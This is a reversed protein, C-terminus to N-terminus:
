AALRAEVELRNRVAVAWVRVPDQAVFGRLKTGTLTTAKVMDYKLAAALVDALRTFDDLPPDEQPYIVRLLTDLTASNESVPVVRCGDRIEDGDAQAGDSATQGIELMSAFFPSALRLIFRSVRFDINDSSRLIIDADLDDFPALAYRPP